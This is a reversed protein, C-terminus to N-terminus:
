SVPQSGQNFTLCPCWGDGIFLSQVDELNKGEEFYLTYGSDVFVLNYCSFQVFYFNM